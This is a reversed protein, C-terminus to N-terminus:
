TQWLVIEGKKLSQQIDIVKQNSSGCWPLTVDRLSDIYQGDVLVDVNKIIEIRKRDQKILFAKEDVKVHKNNLPNPHYYSPQFTFITDDFYKCTSITNGTYLWISKQPSSLRIENVLDLVGDLNEEALPEGGLISIRKIYPRNALELFKNKVEETWEKGGNYDWTEPNFCNPCHFHCGQVFLAIGVGEGNSLDLSRIQAYRINIVSRINM